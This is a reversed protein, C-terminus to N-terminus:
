LERKVAEAHISTNRNSLTYPVHKIKEPRVVNLVLYNGFEVGKDFGAELFLDAEITTSKVFKEITERHSGREEVTASTKM